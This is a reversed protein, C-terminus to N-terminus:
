KLLIAVLLIASVTGVFSGVLVGAIIFCYRLIPRDDLFTKM